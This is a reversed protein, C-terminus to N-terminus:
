GIAPHWSLLNWSFFTQHIGINQMEILNGELAWIKLGLAVRLVVANYLNHMTPDLCVKQGAEMWDPKIWFYKQYLVYDEIVITLIHNQTQWLVCVALVFKRLLLSILTSTEDRWTDDIDKRGEWKGEGLVARLSACFYGFSSVCFDPSLCGWAACLHEPTRWHPVHWLECCVKGLGWLLQFM